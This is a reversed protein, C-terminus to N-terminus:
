KMISYRNARMLFAKEGGEMVSCIEGRLETDEITGAKFVEINKSNSNMAIILEADGNVPINANHTIVIIQRKQKCEKIREVVLDYILHNDLDDEPQDLILPITGDALIFTLIASTRQGASANQLSKYESSNNPKYEIQIDDEPLLLQLDAIQEDNLEAIVKNFKGSFLMKNNYKTDVINEALEAIGKKVDGSFCKKALEDIDDSFGAKKQIISRFRNIFNDRDRFRNIKIKTNTDSLLSKTFMSRENSVKERLEVYEVKIATLKGFEEELQKEKILISDLEKKKDEKKNLLMNISTIDVGINKLAEIKSKYESEVTEFEKYWNSNKIANNYRHKINDLSHIIHNLNHENRSVEEENINLINSLEPIYKSDFKELNVSMDNARLTSKIMGIKDIKHQINNNFVAICAYQQKLTEYKILVDNIGSERYTDIKESIDKLEVNLKRKLLISKESEKIVSYQMKYKAVCMNVDNKYDEIQKIMSDIKDRLAGTNKALKYIQKQNYVDVKFLDDTSYDIDQFVGKEFNYKKIRIDCNNIQSFNNTIIEYPINNKIIQVKIETTKRLVGGDKTKIQYFTLFENYIEDLEKINDIAFMATLFRVITSKGSGRGGIVTTLQPNFEIELPVEGLIEIDKVTISKIWLDPLKTIESNKDQFCTKIRLNSFLLAQRLSELTPNEDMKIWSYEKGIGWIGHKSSNESVPNDSFAVIGIGGDKVLKACEIYDGVVGMALETQVKALKNFLEEKNLDEKRGLVLEENVIQVVSITKNSLFDKQIQYSVNALGSYSDIHAPIVIANFGSAITIVDIVSKKSHAFQKGFDERKLGADRMFDEIEVVTVEVDFLVLLHIKSDSCTIEVGPFVVIGRKKGESKIKDVWEATNHDTIAICDLKKEVVRDIFQEATVSKDTFCESAPTHLHFDCKYWRNGKYEIKM